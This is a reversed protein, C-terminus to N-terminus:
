NKAPAAPASVSGPAPAAVAEKAVAVEAVPKAAAVVPTAAPRVPRKRQMTLVKKLEGQISYLPPLKSEMTLTNPKCRDICRGCFTCKGPDYTWQYTDGSRIVEIACTPCVYACSGCGVCREADNLILGRYDNSTCQHKHPLRFSVPGRRLNDFILRFINMLSVEHLHGVVHRSNGPDCGLALLLSHVETAHIAGHRSCHWFAASSHLIVFGCFFSRVVV